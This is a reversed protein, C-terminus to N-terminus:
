RGEARKMVCRLFGCKVRKFGARQCCVEAAGCVGGWNVTLCSHALDEEPRPLRGALWRCFGNEYLSIFREGQIWVGVNLLPLAM